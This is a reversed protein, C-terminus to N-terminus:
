ETLCMRVTRSRTRAVGGSFNRFTSIANFGFRETPTAPSQLPTPEHTRPPESVRGDADKTPQVPVRVRPPQSPREQLRGRPPNWRAMYQPELLRSPHSSPDPPPEAQGGQKEPQHHYGLTLLRDYGPWGDTRRSDGDRSSSVGRRPTRSAPSARAHADAVRDEAVHQKGNVDRRQDPATQHQAIPPEAREQRPARRRVRGPRRRARLWM